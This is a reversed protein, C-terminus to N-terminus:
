QDLTPGTQTAGNNKCAGPGPSAFSVGDVGANLHHAVGAPETPAQRQRLRRIYERRVQRRHNPDAIAKYCIRQPAPPILLYRRLLKRTEYLSQTSDDRPIRNGHTFEELRRLIWPPVLCHPIKEPLTRVTKICGGRGVCVGPLRCLRARIADFDGESFTDDSVM